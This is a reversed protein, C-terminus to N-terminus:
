SFISPNNVEQFKECLFIRNSLCNLWYLMIEESELFDQSFISCITPFSNKIFEKSLINNSGTINIYDVLVYKITNIDPTQLSLQLFDYFHYKEM